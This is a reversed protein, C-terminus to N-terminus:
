KDGNVDVALLSYGFAAFDKQGKFKQTEVYRLSGDPSSKTFFIVEGTLQSRPAGSVYYRELTKDFIGSTVSYGLYAYIDVPPEQSGASGDAVPVPSKYWTKDAGLQESINSRFVVGRWYISGPAGIVLGDDQTLMSSVGSQCLGFQEHDHSDPRGMCPRWPAQFDLGQYLTYCVGIGNNTHKYRHGCTLVNKGKGQSQLVVGLWQDDMEEDQTPPVNFPDDSLRICDDELTTGSPCRFIAGGRKVKIEPVDAKPAGVLLKEELIMNLLSIQSAVYNEELIM